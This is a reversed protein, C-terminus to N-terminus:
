GLRISLPFRSVVELGGDVRGAIDGVNLEAWVLSIWGTIAIAQHDTGRVSNTRQNGEGVVNRCPFLVPIDIEAIQRAVISVARNRRRTLVYTAKLRRRFLDVFREEERDVAVLDLMPRLMVPWAVAVHHDIGIAAVDIDADALGVGVLPM